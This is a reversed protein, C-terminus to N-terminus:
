SRFVSGARIVRICAWRVGTSGKRGCAFRCARCLGQEALPLEPTRDVTGPLAIPSDAAFNELPWAKSTTQTQDGALETRELELGLSALGFDDSAHVALPLRAQPTVRRGVGSARLTLRPERDHLLGVTLFYPRSALGSAESVLRLEITRPKDM